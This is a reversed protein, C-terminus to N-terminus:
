GGASECCGHCVAPGSVLGISNSICGHDAVIVHLSLPRDVILWAWTCCYSAPAGVIDRKLTDELRISAIAVVRVSELVWLLCCETVSCSAIHPDQGRPAYEWSIDRDIHGQIVVRHVLTRVVPIAAAATTVTAITIAIRIGAVTAVPSIVSVIMSTFVLSAAVSATLSATVSIILSATVSTLLSATESTILPATVSTILPIAPVRHTDSV